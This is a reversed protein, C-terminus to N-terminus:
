TKSCEILMVEDNTIQSIAHSAAMFGFIGTIHTISGMGTECDLKLNNEQNAMACISGDSKPFVPNEESYVCTINFIQKKSRTFGAGSPFNFEQRLRKRLSFLLSDNCALGLDDVKILSPNRKGAAGGTVILPINKERCVSALVCKNQLSDIADIVYTYDSTFIEEANKATFFDEVATVKCQPNIAHIRHGIAKVKMLGYMTDHAHIQRNTNTICIDDLDVLTIAGIGSRALAEAAWTGVGGLGVILIHSKLLKELGLVGYLRAVGGFRLNYDNFDFEKQM